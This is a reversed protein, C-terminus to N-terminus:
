LPLAEKIIKDRLYKNLSDDPIVDVNRLLYSSLDQQLGVLDLLSRGQELTVLFDIDSDVTEEERSVSGFVRVNSAGRKSAIALLVKKNHKLKELLSM